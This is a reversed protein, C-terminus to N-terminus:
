VLDTKRPDPGFKNEGDQGEEWALWVFGFFNVPPPILLYLSYKWNYGLDHLRRIAQIMLLVISGILLIGFVWFTIWEKSRYSEFIMILSLVNISYFTLFLTLYKRRSIRGEPNLIPIM